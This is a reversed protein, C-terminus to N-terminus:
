RPSAATRILEDILALKEIVPGTLVYPYLDDRGLSRNIQNLGYSLPLWADVLEAMDAPAHPALRYAVATQMVARIHLTHAFTEAWDEWPHMTAYPSVHAEAWDDPPGNEYHRDLSEGYDAREDGFVARVRDLDENALAPWYFHGIEHRFHGLVTRYPERLQQRRLEREADDAEALDLTILGDAHGTTVPQTESSLLDFALPPSGPPPPWLGLETLEFLLRRKAAEAEAFTADPEAPRTRTLACSECLEAAGTVTWNCEALTTNACRRDPPRLAVIEGRPWSYALQTGCHLCRSNEFFISQTCVPCDFSRV